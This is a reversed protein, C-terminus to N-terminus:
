GGGPLTVVFSSRPPTREYSARGGQLEALERVIYLGLGIGRNGGAGRSFKQFLGPALDDAIGEGHDRVAIEVRDGVSRSDVTIPPKGYKAANTLLNTLIQVLREEDALVVHGEVGEVEVHSGIPSAEKLAQAVVKELRVPQISLKFSGADLSSATLLDSLLRRIRRSGSMLRELSEDREAAEMQDWYQRLLDATSSIVTVPTQLEHATLAVFEETQRISAALRRNSAELQAAARRQETMDRTVKVFGVHNHNPDFLATIVVNAWFRSGDKRVRWGEEEYRGDRRAAALEEEPRGAGAVQEPYFVRFHRGLIEDASYGKLREAGQNWSTVYGESDLMVIAYDQVSEVMLRLREESARLEYTAEHRRTVDETQAFLYLPRGASDTVAGVTSRVWRLPTSLVLRHEVECPKAPPEAADAIALTVTPRDSEAALETYPRGVLESATVGTIQALANNARVITGNLTLSSMGIAAQDFITRFRELHEAFIAQPDNSIVDVANTTNRGNGGAHSETEPQQPQLLHLATEHAGLVRLLRAPLDSIAAGKEIYASAGLELAKAELSGAAFGSFIVVRTEPSAALVAPLAELGDLDPM